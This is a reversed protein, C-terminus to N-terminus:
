CANTASSLLISRIEAHYETTLIDVSFVVPESKFCCNCCEEDVVITVSFRYECVCGCLFVVVCRVAHLGICMLSAVVLCLPVLTAWSFVLLVSILWSSSCLLLALRLLLISLYLLGFLVELFVPVCVVGLGEDDSLLSPLKIRFNHYLNKLWIKYYWFRYKFSIRHIITIM